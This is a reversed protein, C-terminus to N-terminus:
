ACIRPVNEESFDKGRDKRRESQFRDGFEKKRTGIISRMGKWNTADKSRTGERKGQDHKIKEPGEKKRV